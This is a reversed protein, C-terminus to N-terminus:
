GCCKKFKKGSGCPCSDNRGVKEAERMLGGGEDLLYGEPTEMRAAAGGPSWQGSDNLRMEEAEAIEASINKSWQWLNELIVVADFEEVREDTQRDRNNAISKQIEEIGGFVANDLFGAADAETVEREFESWGLNTVLSTIADWLGTDELRAIVDRLEEQLREVSYHGGWLLHKFSDLATWRVYRDGGQDLALAKIGELDRWCIRAICDDMAETLFDGFLFDVLDEDARLLQLLADSFREDKFEAAFFLAYNLRDSDEVTMADPDSEFLALLPPALDRFEARMRTFVKGPEAEIADLPLVWDPIGAEKLKQFTESDHDIEPNPM